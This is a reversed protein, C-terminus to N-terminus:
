KKNMFKEVCFRCFCGGTEVKKAERLKELVDKTIKIEMCWCTNPDKENENACNNEKGCIPCIKKNM